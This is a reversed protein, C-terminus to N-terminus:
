PSTTEEKWTGGTAIKGIQQSTVQERPTVSTSSSPISAVQRKLQTHGMCGKTSIAGFHCLTHHPSHPSSSPPLSDTCPTVTLQGQTTIEVYPDVVTKSRMVDLTATGLNCMLNQYWYRPDRSTEHHMFTTGSDPLLSQLPTTLWTLKPVALDYNQLSLHYTPNSSHINSLGITNKVYVRSAPLWVIPSLIYATM